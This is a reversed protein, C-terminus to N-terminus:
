TRLQRRGAPHVLLALLVGLGLLVATHKSLLGLGLLGGVAVWLRPQGRELARLSLWTAGAWATLMPADPAAFVSALVFVLPVQTLLLAWLVPGAAGRRGGDGRLERTAAALFGSTLLSLSWTPLRVAGPTDGWLATSAAILWAVMGPHDFYSWDLRQAWHWYYAEDDGLGVRTALLLRLGAFALLGGLAVAVRRKGPDRAARM